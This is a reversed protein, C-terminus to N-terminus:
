KSSSVALVLFLLLLFLLLITCMVCAYDVYIAKQLYMSM